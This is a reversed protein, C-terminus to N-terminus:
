VLGNLQNSIFRSGEPLPPMAGNGIEDEVPVTPWNTDTTNATGDANYDNGDM